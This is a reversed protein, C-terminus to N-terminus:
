SATRLLLQKILARLAAPRVPKHLFSWGNARVQERLAAEPEASIVIVPPRQGWRACLAAYLEPGNRKGLHYDLLVLDPVSGPGALQLADADGAVTVVRLGWRELLVRSAERVRSDDDICWVRQGGLESHDPAAEAAAPEAVDSAESLPVTVSFVSGAGPRSRVGIRHGLLRASRDVIALGLGAGHEAAADSHDGRRFEEFIEQQLEEPIGSGSDRVEIRLCGGSRRCGLLVRGSRTYRLANSLFNLLIRRLLAEDSRVVAATPVCRLELGKAQALIGFQRQLAEFLPRLPVDGVRIEVVGSELRSIDLLDSLIADQAALAEETHAILTSHEQRPSLERLHEGLAHVFMRAANLPQKLDHVVSAVFRTKSRNAREAERRAEELELTRQAVRQELTSALTRLERAASPYSTIDTYSTVFGGGPLPNGRIELVTGDPWEREFVYARAARLHELRRRVADEPDGGLLRRRANYRLLDEIPRGVRLLEQPTQFLEVYRRNWAVLRLQADVVGVAQPLQALRAGHGLAAQQAAQVLEDQATRLAVTHQKVLHELEARSRQQLRAVRSRQHLFLGLFVLTTWAGAAIFGANRAAGAAAGPNRLLHLTWGEAPLPLSQWLYSLDGGPASLQVLRAGDQLPQLTRAPLPRLKDLPYQHTQSLETTTQADLPLLTRYLWSPQSALFVVGHPDSAFVIDRGRSWEREIGDLQMKIILAGLLHHQEDRIAKSLFYGPQGTTVGLGFFAADDQEALERFYPRFSYDYGIISDSGRWNSSAIARGGRDLLTLTSATVVGNIDELKLNIRAQRLPDLPAALAGRVESDRALVAPLARYHEILSELAQAYLRLRQSAQGADDNLARQRASQASVYIALAMGAGISVILLATQPRIRPLRLFRRLGRDSRPPLRRTLVDNPLATM